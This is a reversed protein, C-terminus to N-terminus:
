KILNIKNKIEAEKEDYEKKSILLNFNLHGIVFSECENMTKLDLIKECKNCWDYNRSHDIKEMKYGIIICSILIFMLDVHNKIMKLKEGKECVLRDLLILGYIITRDKLECNNLFSKIEDACDKRYIGDLRKLIDKIICEVVTEFNINVSVIEKDM